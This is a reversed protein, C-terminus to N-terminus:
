SEPFVVAVLKLYVLSLLPMMVLLPPVLVVVKVLMSWTLLIKVPEPSSLISIEAPALPLMISAPAPLLVMTPLVLSSKMLTPIPDLLISPPSPLSEKDKM